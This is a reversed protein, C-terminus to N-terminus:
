CNHLRSFKRRQTNCSWCSNKHIWTWWNLSFKNFKVEFHLNFEFNLMSFYLFNRSLLKLLFYCFFQKQVKITQRHISLVKRCPLSFSLFTPSNFHSFNFFILWVNRSAPKLHFFALSVLFNMLIDTAFRFTVQFSFSLFSFLLELSFNWCALTKNWM